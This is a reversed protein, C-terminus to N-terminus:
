GHLAKHIAARAASLGDETQVWGNERELREVLGALAALLDPAAAVLRANAEAEPHRDTAYPRCDAVTGIGLIDKPDTNSEVFYRKEVRWPGPTGKFENM